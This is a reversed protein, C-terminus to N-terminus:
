QALAEEVLRELESLRAELSARQRELKRVKAEQTRLEAQQEKVGEILLAVLRSYDLGSARNANGDVVEPVVRAVEEAILGIDAQGNAKWNFRVGRLRLLKELPSEIGRIDTKWRRSSYVTWADAIPDTSSTQQITLINSPIPTASFSIGVNGLFRSGGRAGVVFQNEGNSQIPDSFNDAWVFSGNHLAQAGDGAAFSNTGGAVNRSGGPITAFEGSAVNFVGGGVAGYGRDTATGLGDGARNGYGGAVTGYWDTVRNPNLSDGGGGISVGSTGATALGGGGIINPTSTPELRLARVGNVKLELAQFDTTGLFNTAPTTGSNGTLQWGPAGADDTGDAFGAPVNKLKTWDVPNGANNIGGPNSLTPSNLTGNITVADGPADGLLVQNAATFSGFAQLTGQAVLNGQVTTTGGADIVLRNIGNTRLQLSLANTTGLFSAGTANANGNLRWVTNGLSDLEAQTAPDFGLDGTAISGNQVEASGVADTALDDATLTGDLVEGGLGGVVSDDALEEATISNDQIEGPGVAGSAIEDSEVSNSALDIAALSNDAVSGGLGGMVAGDDLMAALVGGPAIRFETGLLDLGAGATYTTGDDGDALDAPVGTLNSWAVPGGAVALCQVSGDLGIAFIAQGAPCVGHVRLQFDSASKGQLQSSNLSLPVPGLTGENIDIGKLSNPKVQPSGVSNKPVRAASAAEAALLLVIFLALLARVRM